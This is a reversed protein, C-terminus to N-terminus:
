PTNGEQPPNTIPPLNNKALWRRSAEDMWTFTRTRVVGAVMVAAFRAEPTIPLNFSRLMEVVWYAAVGAVVSIVADLLARRWVNPVIDMSALAVITRLAGGTVGILAAWGVSAWDFQAMSEGLTSARAIQSVTLAWLALLPIVLREHKM